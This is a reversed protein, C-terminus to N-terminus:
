VNKTQYDILVMEFVIESVLQLMLRSKLRDRNPETQKTMINIHSKQAVKNNSFGTISIIQCGLSQCKQITDVILTEEGSLSFVILCDKVEAVNPIDRIPFEEIYDNSWLGINKLKHNFSEAVNASSGIGIVYVRRSNIINSSIKKITEEDLLSMTMEFDSQFTETINSFNNINRTFNETRRLNMIEYKFEMYSSFNLKKVARVVTPASINMEEEIIKLTLTELDDFSLIFDIALQETSTLYEYYNKLNKNLRNM